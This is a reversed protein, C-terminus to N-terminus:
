VVVSRRNSEALFIMLNSVRCLARSAFTNYINIAVVTNLLLKIKYILFRRAIVLWDKVEFRDIVELLVISYIVSSDRRLVRLFWITIVKVQSWGIKYMSFFFSIFLFFLHFGKHFSFFFIIKMRFKFLLFIIEKRYPISNNSFMLQSLLFPISENGERRKELIFLYTVLRYNNYWPNKRRKGEDRM